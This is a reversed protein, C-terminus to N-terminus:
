SREKRQIDCARTNGLDSHFECSLFDHDVHVSLQKDYGLVGSKM